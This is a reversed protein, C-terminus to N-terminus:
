SRNQDGQCQETQQSASFLGILNPGTSGSIIEDIPMISIVFHITVITHSIYSSNYILSINLNSILQCFIYILNVCLWTCIM